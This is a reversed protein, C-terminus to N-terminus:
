RVMLLEREIWSGGLRYTWRPFPALEFREAHAHGLPSYVGRYRAMSLPFAREGSEGGFGRRPASRAAHVTEELRSLFVHRRATGAFPAVLLGHYRRRNCLHVTSSAYGGRGDTELWERALAQELGLLEDRGLALRATGTAQM